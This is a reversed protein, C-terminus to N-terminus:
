LREKIEELFLIERPVIYEAEWNTLSSDRLAKLADNYSLWVTKYRRERESETLSPEGKAGVLNALYCHSIQKERDEQWYETIMGIESTVEIDCGIEEQCERRLATIVDEGEEVGGGPLKYYNDRTVHLMAILGEADRVIARAAERLSYNEGEDRSVNRPNIFGLDKM